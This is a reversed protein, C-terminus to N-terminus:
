RERERERGESLDSSLPVEDFLGDKVRRLSISEKVAM